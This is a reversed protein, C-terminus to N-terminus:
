RFLYRLTVPYHDSTTNVYSPITPVTATASGTVYSSFLGANFLQHDITSNFATTRRNADSLEKTGFRYRTSDSVFNAYPSANPTVVSVDVDDNWDGIVMVNDAARTTDLYGKLANGAALRRDYSDTDGYAKMHLVIVYLERTVGNGAVRVRVELPPRGAFDFNSTTLILQASLVTVKSTRYVLALKQEFPQYYFTGAQVETSMVAAFGPVGAVVGAFETTGVVEEFGWIDVEPRQRIVTGVNMAQLANDYPGSYGGDPEMADAFWEVNWCAVVLPLGADTAAGGGGGTAGGGGGGIGGGTVGGGGGTVAGGGGGTVSGGGGGTGGGVSGGGGAGGGTGIVPVQCIANRCVQSLACTTCSAGYAGCALASQTEQTVCRDNSDCCGGCTEPSCEPETPCAFLVLGSALSLLAVRWSFRM